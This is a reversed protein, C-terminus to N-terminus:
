PYYQGIKVWLDMNLYKQFIHDLLSIKHVILDVIHFQEKIYRTNHNIKYIKLFYLNLGFIFVLVGDPEFVIYVFYFFAYKPGM